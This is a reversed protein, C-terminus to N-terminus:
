ASFTGHESSSVSANSFEQPDQHGSLGCLVQISSSFSVSGCSSSEFSSDSPTLVAHLITSDYTRIIANLNSNLCIINHSITVSLSLCLYQFFSSIFFSNSFCDFSCDLLLVFLRVSLCVSVSRYVFLAFLCISCSLSVSFSLFLYFSLYLFFFVSLLFLYSFLFM